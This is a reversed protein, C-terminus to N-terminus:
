KKIAEIYFPGQITEVVNTWMDGNTNWTEFEAMSDQTLEKVKNKIQHAISVKMQDGDTTSEVDFVLLNEESDTHISVQRTPM